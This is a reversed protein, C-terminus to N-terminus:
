FIFQCLKLVNKKICECLTISLYCKRSGLGSRSPNLVCVCSVFCRAAAASIQTKSIFPQIEVYRGQFTWTGISRTMCAPTRCSYSFSSFVLSAGPPRSPPLTVSDVRCLISCLPAACLRGCFVSYGNLSPPVLPPFSTSNFLFHCREPPAACHLYQLVCRCM